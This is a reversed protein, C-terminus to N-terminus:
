WIIGLPILKMVSCVVFVSGDFNHGLTAEYVNNFIAAGVFQCVM